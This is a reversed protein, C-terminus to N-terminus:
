YGYMYHRKTKQKKKTLLVVVLIIVLIIVVIIITKWPSPTSVTPTTAPTGEDPNTNTNTPTTTETPTTAPEEAPPSVVPAIAQIFIVAKPGSLGIYRVNIDNVGDGSLDYSYLVGKQLTASIPTSAITVRAEGASFQNLTLSHGSSGVAFNIKDSFKLTYEDGTNSFQSDTAYETPATHTTGGTTTGSGSGPYLITTLNYVSTSNTNGSNDTFYWRYGIVKGVTSNLNKVSRAIESTTLFNVATDNEWSGSNDTSFIYQGNNELAVNDNVTITFANARGAYTTEVASDSYTPATLDTTTLIYTPTSGSNNSSDNFYWKYGIVMGETSNLVKTVNAWSPTTTFNVGSNNTWVGTNNTSFVYKNNPQLNTNDNVYISFLTIQGSLSNNISKLSYTPTTTDVVTVNFTESSGTYNQNGTYSATVNHAGVTNFTTYYVSLSTVGSVNSSNQSGGDVLLGLSESGGSLMRTTLNTANLWISTSSELTLNARSNNVYAYVQSTAKNVTFSTENYTYTYNATDTRQASFNFYGAGSDQVSNNNIVTGNKYLTFASTSNAWALFTDPYTLPSTANFLVNFKEQSKAIIFQQQNFTNTYNATDTRQVSINYATAGFNITTGNGITTGNMSLTYAPSSCNTYAIFGTPYTVPSATNFYVACDNGYNSKNVQVIYIVSSNSAAVSNNITVNILYTGVAFNTMPTANTLIATQNNTTFGIQIILFRSDNISYNGFTSTNTANFIGTNVSGNGYFISTNAPTTTFTPAAASIFNLCIIFIGLFILLYEFRKKMM